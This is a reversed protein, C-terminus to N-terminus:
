FTRIVNGFHKTIKYDLAPVFFSLILILNYRYKFLTSPRIKLTFHDQGTMILIANNYNKYWFNKFKLECASPQGRHFFPLLIWYIIIIM